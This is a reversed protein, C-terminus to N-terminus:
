ILSTEHDIKKLYPFNIKSYDFTTERTSESM